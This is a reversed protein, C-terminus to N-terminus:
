QFDSFEIITVPADPNGKFHRTLGIMLDMIERRQEDTVETREETVSPADPIEPAAAVAPETATATPGGLGAERALDLLAPAFFGAALGLVLLLAAIIPTAWSYFRIVLVPERPEDELEADEPELEDNEIEAHTKELAAAAELKSDAPPELMWDENEAPQDAPFDQGTEQESREQEDMEDNHPDNM